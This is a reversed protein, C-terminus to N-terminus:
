AKPLIFSVSGPEALSALAKLKAAGEATLTPGNNLRYWRAGGGLDLYTHPFAASTVLRAGPGVGSAKVKGAKVAEDTAERAVNEAAAQDKTFRLAMELNAKFADQYSTKYAV